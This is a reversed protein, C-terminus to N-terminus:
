LEDKKTQKETGDGSSETETIEGDEDYETGQNMYSRILNAISEHGMTHAAKEADYGPTNVHSLDAGNALLVEVVERHGESAALILPTSADLMQVDPNAGENLLFKLMETHNYRAAAHLVGWVRIENIRWPKKKLMRQITPLDGMKAANQFRGPTMLFEKIEPYGQMNAVEIANYGQQNRVSPDAGRETLMQVFEMDGNFAALAMATSGDETRANVDAGHDILWVVVKKRRHQVAAHIPMVVSRHNISHPREKLITKVTALDGAVCAEMLEEFRADVMVNFGPVGPLPVAKKGDTKGERIVGDKDMSLLESVHSIGGFRQAATPAATLLLLLLLPPM